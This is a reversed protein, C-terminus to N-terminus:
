EYTCQICVYICVYIQTPMRGDVLSSPTTDVRKEIQLQTLAQVSWNKFTLRQQLSQLCVTISAPSATTEGEKHSEKRRRSREERKWMKENKDSWNKFSLRQHLSQLCVTISVPSATTEGEKQSEKRHSIEERKGEMNIRTQRPPALDYPRRCLGGMHQYWHPM